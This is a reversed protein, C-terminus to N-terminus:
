TIDNHLFGSSSVFAYDLNLSRNNGHLSLSFKYIILMKFEPLTTGPIDYSVSLSVERLIIFIIRFPILLSPFCYCDSFMLFSALYPNVLCQYFLTM